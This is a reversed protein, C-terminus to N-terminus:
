TVQKPYMFSTRKAKALEFDKWKKVDTTAGIIGCTPVNGIYDDNKLENAVDTFGPNHGFILVTSWKDPLQRIVREITKPSAHYLEDQILIQDKAIGFADRFFKATKRARKASSVVMGDPKTKTARLRDAM